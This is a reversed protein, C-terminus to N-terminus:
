WRVVSHQQKLMQVRRSEFESGESGPLSFFLANLLEQCGQGSDAKLVTQTRKSDTSRNTLVITRMM